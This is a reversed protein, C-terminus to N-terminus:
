DNLWDLSDPYTYPIGNEKCYQAAYSGHDVTATLSDCWFFAEEGIVTVSEPISINALHTCGYFAADGISM